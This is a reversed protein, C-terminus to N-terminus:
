PFVSLSSVVNLPCSCLEEILTQFAKFVNLDLYYTPLQLYLIPALFMELYTKAYTSMLPVTSSVKSPLTYLLLQCVVSWLGFGTWQRNKYINKNSCLWLGNTKNRDNAVKM